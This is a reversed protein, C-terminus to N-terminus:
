RCMEESGAAEPAEGARCGVVACERRHGLGAYKPTMAAGRAVRHIDGGGAPAVRTVDIVWVGRGEGLRPVVFRAVRPRANRPM